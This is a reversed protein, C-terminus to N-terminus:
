DEKRIFRLVELITIVILNIITVIILTENM